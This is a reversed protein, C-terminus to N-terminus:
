GTLDRVRLDSIGDISYIIVDIFTILLEADRSRILAKSLGVRFRLGNHHYEKSLKLLLYLVAVQLGASGFELQQRYDHRAFPEIHHQHM